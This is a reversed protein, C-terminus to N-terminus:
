AGLNDLAELIEAQLVPDEVRNILEILHQMAPGSEM